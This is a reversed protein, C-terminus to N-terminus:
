NAKIGYYCDKPCLSATWERGLYSVLSPLEEWMQVCKACVASRILNLTVIKFLFISKRRKVEGRKKKIKISSTSATYM